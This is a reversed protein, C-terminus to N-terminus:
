GAAVRASLGEALRHPLGEFAGSSMTVLVDGPRAEALARSLVEEADACLAAPVGTAALARALAGFDLREEPDLRGAHFTPAFLVRDAGAFAARYADFFM